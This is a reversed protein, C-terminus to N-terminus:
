HFADEGYHQVPDPQPDADRAAGRVQGVHHYVKTPLLFNRVVTNDFAKYRQFNTIPQLANAIYKEPREFCVELTKRIERLSEENGVTVNVVACVFKKKLTKTALKNGAV